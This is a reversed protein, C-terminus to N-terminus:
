CMRKSGKFRIVRYHIHASFHGNGINPHYFIVFFRTLGFFSVLAYQKIIDSISFTCTTAYITLDLISKYKYVICM